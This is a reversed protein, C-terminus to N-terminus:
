SEIRDEEDVAGCFVTVDASAIGLGVEKAKIVEVLEVAEVWGV